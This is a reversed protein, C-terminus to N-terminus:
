LKKTINVRVRIEDSAADWYVSLTKQTALGHLNLDLSSVAMERVPVYNLFDPENSLFKTLQFGGRAPLCKLHKILVM